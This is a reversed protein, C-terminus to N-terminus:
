SKKLKYRLDPPIAKLIQKGTDDTEEEALSLSVQPDTVQKPVSPRAALKASLNRIIEKANSLETNLSELAHLMIVLKDADELTVTTEEAEITFSGDELKTLGEIPFLESFSEFAIAIHQEKIPEPIGPQEEAEQGPIPDEIVPAELSFLKRFNDKIKESLNMNSNNLYNNFFEILNEPKSFIFEALDPNDDLLRSAQAPITESSFLGDAAAPDDVIDTARLEKLRFLKRTTKKGHEEVEATEFAASEFVLSAGFMDPNKEAMDLVYNYLDGQPTAKATEDLHLNATVREGHFAYDHFRGLYTGLATSCMNPHGFRAKIGQPRTNALEVVQLLFNKDLHGDHGRAAGLRAVTIGKIIGTDRNISDIPIDFVPSSLYYRSM